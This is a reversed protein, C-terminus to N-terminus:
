FTDLFAHYPPLVVQSQLALVYKLMEELYNFKAVSCTIDYCWRITCDSHVSVLYM